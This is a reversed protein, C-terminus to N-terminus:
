PLTPTSTRASAPLCSRLRPLSSPTSLWSSGVLGEKNQDYGLVVLVMKLFETGKVNAKPVFSTANKGAIIGARYGYAVYSEGWRGKM